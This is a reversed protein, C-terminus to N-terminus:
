YYFIKYINYLKINQLITIFLPTSNGNIDKNINDDKKNDINNNSSSSIINNNILNKDTNSNRHGNGRNKFKKYLDPNERLRSDIRRTFNSVDIKIHPEQAKGAPYQERNPRHKILSVEEGYFPLSVIFSKISNSNKTQLELIKEKTLLLQTKDDESSVNEKYERRKERRRKTFSALSFNNDDVEEDFERLNRLGTKDKVTIARIYHLYLLDFLIENKISPICKHFSLIENKIKNQCEIFKFVFGIIDGKNYKM